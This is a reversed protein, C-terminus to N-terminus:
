ETRPFEELLLQLMECSNIQVIRWFIYVYGFAYIKVYLGLRREILLEVEQNGIQTLVVVLTIRIVNKTVVLILGLSEMVYEVVHIFLHRVFRDCEGNVATKDIIIKLDCAVGIM